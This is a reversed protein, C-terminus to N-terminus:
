KKNNEYKQSDRSFIMELANKMDKECTAYKMSYKKWADLYDCFNEISTKEEEHKKMTLVGM